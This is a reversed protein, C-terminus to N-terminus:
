AAFSSPMVRAVSRLRMSFNPMWRSNFTFYIYRWFRTFVSVNKNKTELPRFRDDHQVADAISM